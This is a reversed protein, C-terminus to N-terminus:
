SRMWSPVLPRAGIGTDVHNAGFRMARGAEIGDDVAYLDRGEHAGVPRMDDPLGNMAAAVEARDRDDAHITTVEVLDGHTGGDIPPECEMHRLRWDLMVQGLKQHENLLALDIRGKDNSVA